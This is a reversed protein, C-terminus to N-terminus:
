GRIEGELAEMYGELTAAYGFVFRAFFRFLPNHIVGDETISLECGSGAETLRYTWTGGFDANDVIRTVLESPESESEVVYRLPGPGGREEYVARGDRRDVVVVESVTPRWRASGELNRVLRWVEAPPAPLERVVTATHTTPVLWGVVFVLLVLGVVTAVAWLTIRAARGLRM